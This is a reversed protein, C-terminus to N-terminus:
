ILFIFTCDGANTGSELQLVEFSTLSHLPSVDDRSSCPPVGTAHFCASISFAGGMFLWSENLYYSSGTNNSLSDSTPADVSLKEDPYFWKFMKTPTLYSNCNSNPSSSMSYSILNIRLSAIELTAAVLLFLFWCRRWCLVLQNDIYKNVFTSKSSM